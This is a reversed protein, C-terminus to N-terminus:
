GETNVGSGCVLLNLQKLRRCDGGALLAGVSPAGGDRCTPLLDLRHFPDRVGELMPATLPRGGVRLHTLREQSSVLKVFIKEESPSKFPGAPISVFSLHHRYQLFATSCELLRMRDLNTLGPLFFCRGGESGLDHVLLGLLSRIGAQRNPPQGSPSNNLIDRTM